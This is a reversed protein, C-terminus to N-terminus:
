QSYELEETDDDPLGRLLMDHLDEISAQLQDLRSIVHELTLVTPATTATSGRQDKTTLDICKKAPPKYPSDPTLRKSM